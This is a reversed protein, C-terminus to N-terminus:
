NSQKIDLAPGKKIKGQKIMLPLIKNKLQSRSRICNIQDVANDKLYEQYIKNASMSGERYLLQSIYLHPGKTVYGKGTGASVEIIRKM